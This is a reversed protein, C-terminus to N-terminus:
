RGRGMRIHLECEALKAWSEDNNKLAQMIDQFKNELTWIDWSMEDPAVGAQLLWKALGSATSDSQSTGDLLNATFQGDQFEVKAKM